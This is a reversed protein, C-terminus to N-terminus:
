IDVTYEIFSSEIVNSEGFLLTKMRKFKWLSGPQKLCFGTQSVSDYVLSNVGLSCNCINACLCIREVYDIIYTNLHITGMEFVEFQCNYVCECEVHVGIMM